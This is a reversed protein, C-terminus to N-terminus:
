ITRRFVSSPLYSALIRLRSKTRTPDLKLSERFAERGERAHGNLVRVTGLCAWNHALALRVKEPDRAAREQTQLNLWNRLKEDDKWIRDLKHSANGGHVRYYTLPEHVFGIEYQAAIRLWMEWDGSGFYAPNFAGCRDFCDKRALVASAIIKNMYYLDLYVDGTETRPFEFGLPSGDLRKGDGDIFHGDTHTLGVKPHKEFLELQRELKTPEWLDDDNLIAVYDGKARELGVNLTGYTGLNKENFVIEVEGKKSELWERTGDTSGDDLCIIQLDHHTQSQASALCEPLYRIHNYCTLLVSILPM